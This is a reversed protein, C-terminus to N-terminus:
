IVKAWQTVPATGKLAIIEDYKCLGECYTRGVQEGVDLLFDRLALLSGPSPGKGSYFEIVWPPRIEQYEHAPKAVALENVMRNHQLAEQTLRLIDAPCPMTTATRLWERFAQNIFDMHYPELILAFGQLINM